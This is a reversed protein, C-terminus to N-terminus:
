VYVFICIYMFINTFMYVKVKEVASLLETETFEFKHITSSLLGETVKRNDSAVALEEETLKVKDVVHDFEINIRKLEESISISEDVASNKEYIASNREKIAEDLQEKYNCIMDSLDNEKGSEFLDIKEIASNYNVTVRRIEGELRDIESGRKCTIEDILIDKQSITNSIESIATDKSAILTMLEKKDNGIKELEIIL